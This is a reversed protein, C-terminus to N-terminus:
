RTRLCTLELHKDLTGDKWRQDLIIDKIGDDTDSESSLDDRVYRGRVHTQFRASDYVVTVKMGADEKPFTVVGNAYDISKSEMEVSSSITKVTDITPIESLKVTYPSNDPILHIESRRAMIFTYNVSLLRGMYSPPLSLEGSKCDLSYIDPSIKTGESSVMVSDRVINTQGLQVICSGADSKGLTVKSPVIIQEPPLKYYSTERLQELQSRSLNVAALRRGTYSVSHNGAILACYCAGLAITLVVMAVLVELVTLGACDRLQRHNILNGVCVLGRM